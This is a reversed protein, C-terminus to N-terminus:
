EVRKTLIANTTVSGSDLSGAEWSVTVEIQKGDTEYDSIVIQRTYIDQTDPSGSLAWAAGSSDLGYTGNALNSWSSDRLNRVAEQAQEALWNARFRNGVTVAGRERFVVAGGFVTAMALILAISLM